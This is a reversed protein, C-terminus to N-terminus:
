NNAWQGARSRRRLDPKRKSPKCKTVKGAKIAEEVMQKTNDDTKARGVAGNVQGLLKDSHFEQIKRRTHSRLAAM